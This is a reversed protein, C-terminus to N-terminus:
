GRMTMMMSIAGSGHNVRNRGARKSEYLAQDAEQLLVEADATEATLTAVGVSITIPRKNWPALAVAERCREALVLAGAADTDPLIVAFEEGGYRAVMDTIRASSNLTAAVKKLVEDGAPHGYTDNFMKFHDVDMLILSLPREHRAARHFEESLKENFAARNKVGTLGDTTALALLKRNAAELETQYVVLQQEYRVRETMDQVVLCLVARGELQLVSGSVTVDLISGDKRRYRRLGISARGRSEILQMMEDIDDKEHAVFGYQTMATLETETYGLLDLFARNSRLVVRTHRDLLVVGEALEEIMSRFREESQRLAEEAQTELTVDVSMGALFKRGQPDIMPFKFSQWCSSLGDPSPVTERLKAMQGTALVKQDIERLPSAIEPGWLEADTKGLWGAEPIAFKDCAPKNVFVFKGDEDKMYAMAPSNDMFARFREESAKLKAEAQRIATIDRGEPVLLMVEGADNKIPTLTFDINALSGDVLTHTTEFRISEGQGARVIADRLRDRMVADHQWFITDPFPVGIVDSEQVGVAKLAFKNAAIITGDPTLLGVFEIMSDFIARFKAESLQVTALLESQYAQLEAQERELRLRESIERFVLVAGSVHGQDDKIPAATDELPWETGDKAVLIKGQTLEIIKAETLAEMLPNSGKGALDLRAAPYIKAIPQGTAEEQKWGTLEEAVRNLVSVRGREDTVIVGDGMSTVTAELFNKQKLIASIRSRDSVSRHGLWLAVGVAALAVVLTVASTAVASSYSRARERERELLLRNEEAQMVRIVERLQDMIAKGEATRGMERLAEADNRDFVHITRVLYTMLEAILLDAEAIREQQAPNDATLTKVRQSKTLYTAKADEYPELFRPNGTLLYGRMGTQADRMAGLLESIADQVEHTHAVWRADEDLQRTSRYTMASNILLVVVILIVGFLLKRDITKLM